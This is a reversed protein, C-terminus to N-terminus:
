KVYLDKLPNLAKTQPINVNQREKVSILQQIFKHVTCFCGVARGLGNLYHLQRTGEAQRNTFAEGLSHHSVKCDVLFLLSDQMSLTIFISCVM